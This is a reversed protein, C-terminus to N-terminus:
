GLDRPPLFRKLDAPVEVDPTWPEPNVRGLGLGELAEFVDDDNTRDAFDRGAFRYAESGDPAVVVMGPLAIGGREEPDYMDLAQLYREGGPDAVFRIDHMGWRQAMGAQRVDDDVSIAIMEAGLGHIRDM